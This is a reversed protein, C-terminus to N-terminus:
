LVTRAEPLSSDACPPNTNTGSCPITFVPCPWRNASRISEIWFPSDGSTNADIWPSSSAALVAIASMPFSQDRVNGLLAPKTGYSKSAAAFSSTGRWVGSRLLRGRCFPTPVDRWNRRIVPQDLLRVPPTASADANKALSVVVLVNPPTVPRRRGFLIVYADSEFVTM